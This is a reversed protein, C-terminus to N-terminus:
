RKKVNKKKRKKPLVVMEYTSVPFEIMEAYDGNSM